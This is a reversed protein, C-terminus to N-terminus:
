SRGLDPAIVAEISSARAARDTQVARIRQFFERGAPTLSLRKYRRDKPDEERLVFDMGPQQYRKEKTWYAVNRSATANNLGLSIEVDKQTCVGRQAIYLFVLLTSLQMEADLTKFLEIERTFRAFDM